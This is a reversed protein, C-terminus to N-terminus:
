AEEDLVALVRDLEDGHVADLTGEAERLILVQDPDDVAEVLYYTHGDLDVADHLRFRREGGEDDILALEDVGDV